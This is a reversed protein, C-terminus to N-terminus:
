TMLVDAAADKGELAVGLVQGVVVHCRGDVGGAAFDRRGGRGRRPARCPRPEGIGCHLRPPPGPRRMLGADDARDWVDCLGVHDLTVVGHCLRTWRSWGGDPGVPQEEDGALEADSGAMGAHGELFLEPDGEAFAKV